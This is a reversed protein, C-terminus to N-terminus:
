EPTPAPQASFLPALDALSGGFTAPGSQTTRVWPALWIRFGADTVRRCFSYDESLLQRTDPDIMPLFFACASQAIRYGQQESPDTRYALEPHADHLATLVDRRILLLGTGIRALEVLDTLAFNQDPRLFSFAFEGSFRALDAARGKALGQDAARAVNTWNVVRRPVPAGLVACDPNKDMAEVMSFIDVAEFDVDCDIFLLHTFDGLLFLNALINRTRDISPQNLVFEFRVSVGRSEAALALALAARVYGGQAGEYIPTAVMLRCRSM